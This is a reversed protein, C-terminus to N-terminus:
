LNDRETTEKTGKTYDYELENIITSIIRSARLNLRPEELWSDVLRNYYIMSAHDRGLRNAISTLTMWTYRYSLWCVMARAEVFERQRGKRTMEEETVRTERTVAKIISEIDTKVINRELFDAAVDISEGIEAASFPPDCPEHDLRRYDNFKRLVHAARAITMM